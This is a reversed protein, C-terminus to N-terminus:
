LENVREVNWEVPVGQGFGIHHHEFPRMCGPKGCPYVAAALEEEDDLLAEDEFVGLRELWQELRDRDSFDEVDALARLSGAKFVVLAGRELHDVPIREACAAAVFAEGRRSRRWSITPHEAAIVELAKDLRACAARESDYAHGVVVGRFDDGSSAERVYHKELRSALMRDLIVAEEDDIDSESEDSVTEIPVDRHVPEEPDSRPPQPPVVVVSRRLNAVKRTPDAARLERMLAAAKRRDKMEKACCPDMWAEPDRGCDCPQPSSAFAGPQDYLM